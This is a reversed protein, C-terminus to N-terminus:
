RQRLYRAAHRRLIRHLCTREGTSPGREELGPRVNM